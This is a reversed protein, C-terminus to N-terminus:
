RQHGLRVDLAPHEAALRRLAALSGRSRPVDDSFTGPPVGHDWGWRSHCADGVLLVPGRPTRALYATSGRTHGPVSLAWLTGDGLVDVVGPFPAGPEAAAPYPWEALPGKGALARDMNPRLLWAIFGHTVEGPGAYVPTGAPADALGTVHDPHLHTLLVGRVPAPHAALWDGLPATVKLAGLHMQSAVIGRFAAAEPRDRHAREVGTDVLFLGATPHRLAHFYVQIPEARDTLGAAKAVPDDLDVLGGLNVEWDASAVTEVEVPGPQDIVAALAAYPRAVGLRSPVVEHSTSACGIALLPAALLAVTLLRPPLPQSPPRLTM